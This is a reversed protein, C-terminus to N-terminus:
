PRSTPCVADPVLAPSCLLGCRRGSPRHHNPRVFQDACGMPAAWGMESQMSAWWASSQPEVDVVSPETALVVTLVIFKAGKECM